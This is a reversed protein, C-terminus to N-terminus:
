CRRWTRAGYIFTQGSVHTLRVSMGSAILKGSVNSGEVDLDAHQAGDQTTEDITMHFSSASGTSKSADSVIQQASHSDQYSAAAASGCAATLVVAVVCLWVPRAVGM